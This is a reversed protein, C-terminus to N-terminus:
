GHTLRSPAIADVLHSAQIDSADGTFGMRLTVMADCLQEQSTTKEPVPSGLSYTVGTTGTTTTSADGGCAYLIASIVM